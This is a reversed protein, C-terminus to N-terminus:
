ACRNDGHLWYMDFPLGTEKGHLRGWYVKNYHRCFLGPVDAVSFEIANGVGPVASRDQGRVKSPSDTDPYFLLLRDSLKRAHELLQERKEESLCQILGSNWLADYALYHELFDGTVFLGEAGARHFIEAAERIPDPRIDLLTVRHGECALRFSIHGTSSGFELLRDQREVFQM